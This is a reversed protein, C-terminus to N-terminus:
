GPKKMTLLQVSMQEGNAILNLTTMRDDKTFGIRHMQPVPNDVTEETWGEANLAKRVDEIIADASDGSMAQIMYGGPTPTTAMISWEDSVPVDAPFGDPLDINQGVVAGGLGNNIKVSKVEGKDDLEVDADVGHRKAMDEMQKERAEEGGGCAALLVAGAGLAAFSLVKRM